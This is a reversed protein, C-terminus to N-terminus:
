SSAGRRPEAEPFDPEKDRAWARKAAEFSAKREAREDPPEPTSFFREAQRALECDAEERLGRKRLDAIEVATLDRKHKREKM